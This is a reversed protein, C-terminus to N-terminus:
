RRMPSTARRTPMEGDTKREQSFTPSIEGTRVLLRYRIYVRDSTRMKFRACNKRRVRYM